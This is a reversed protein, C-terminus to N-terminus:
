KDDGFLHRAFEDADFDAMEQYSIADEDGLNDVGHNQLFGTLERVAGVMGATEPVFVLRQSLGTSEFGEEFLHDPHSMLHVSEHVDLTQHTVVHEGDIGTFMWVAPVACGCVYDAAERYWADNNSGPIAVVRYSVGVGKVYTIMHLGVQGEPSVFPLPDNLPDHYVAGTYGECDEILRM